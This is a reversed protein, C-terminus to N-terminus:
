PERVGHIAFDPCLMGCLDCGKCLAQDMVLPFHYGKRNFGSSLKLNRAPCFAVCFGCGKCREPNILTIGHRKANGSPNKAGSEDDPM